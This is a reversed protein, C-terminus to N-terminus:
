FSSFPGYKIILGDRSQSLCAQWIYGDSRQHRMIAKGIETPADFWSRFTVRRECTASGVARSLVIKTVSPRGMSLSILEGYDAILHKRYPGAIEYYVRRDESWISNDNLKMCFRAGPECGGSSAPRRASQFTEIFIGERALAGSVRLHEEFEGVKIRDEQGYHSRDILVPLRQLSNVFKLIDSDSLGYGGAEQVEAGESTERGLVGSGTPIPGIGAPKDAIRTRDSVNMTPITRETGGFRNGLYFVGDDGVAIIATPCGASGCMYTNRVVFVKRSGVFIDSPLRASRYSYERVSCSTQCGSRIMEPIIELLEETSLMRDALASTTLATSMLLTLWIRSM